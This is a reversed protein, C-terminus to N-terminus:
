ERGEDSAPPLKIGMSNTLGKGLKGLPSNALSKYFELEGGPDIEAMEAGLPTQEDGPKSHPTSHLKDPYGLSYTKNDGRFFVRDKSVFTMVLLRPAEDGSGPFKLKQGKRYMKGGIIAIQETGQVFTADLTMAKLMEAIADTHDVHNTQTTGGQTVEEELEEAAAAVTRFPDRVAAASSVFASEIALVEKEVRALTSSALSDTASAGTPDDINEEVSYGFYALLAVMLVTPAMKSLKAPTM